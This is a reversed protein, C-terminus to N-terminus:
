PAASPDLIQNLLVALRRGALAIRAEAEPRWTQIYDQGIRRKPPYVGPRESLACSEEAWGAPDTVTTGPAPLASLRQHHATESEGLGRFLGSDWLAHLNTGRGERSGDDLHLQFDNGGKDSARGAHMPQHADGVFHVVFKLAQRREDQPRSRDALIAAQATTAAVVCNGNRCHLDADYRCNNEALNVYHWGASRRGLDPDHARLEDAWSAIGALTPEDEGELLRAVEARAAPSLADEALAGVLRHGRPGWASAPTSVVALLGSVLIAYILRTM